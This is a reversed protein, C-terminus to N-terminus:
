EASMLTISLAKLTHALKPFMFVIACRKRCFGSKTAPLTSRPRETMRDAILSCIGVGKLWSPGGWVM